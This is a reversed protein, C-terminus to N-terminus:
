RMKMVEVPLYSANREFDWLTQIKLNLIEIKYDIIANTYAQKANTLQTQYQQLEMGSLNGNRYKEMNIDYTREANEVSKKKINIQNVLVPLNRCIQRINIVIEKKQETMSIEDSEMALKSSEVRAKKAGWDFIPITLSVGVQENDTPNDYMNGVKNGLFGLGVRASIEGKFESEAKARIISFVDQELTIQKQRLEMRQDLGYKVADHTNVNVSVIEIDPLVMIDEDLSIGLLLKFNDKINEYSIEQSYVSSESTALNVEAQYLEERAILGAEVKNKIVEYNQKQNAYEERAISLEKQKQYVTYFNDTVNKEISLQQMAYSLRANEFRLELEKLQMKTRNYTFLPQLLRLSIDHTFATSSGGSSQNKAEQWGLDNVLSLTGDTWKIPQIIGFSASSSMTKSDYWKSNYSDYQNLRSYTFPNVDLAFQSKLSAQQAKLNLESQQLGLQSQILAPSHQFAIELAKNLTLVEQAKLGTSGLTCAIILFLIYKHM